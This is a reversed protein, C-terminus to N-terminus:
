FIDRRWLLRVLVPWGFLFPHRRQRETMEVPRGIHRELKWLIYPVWDGVTTANKLLRVFALGKAFPRALQWRIRAGRRRAPAMHVEFAPGRAHVEDLWGRQRLTELAPGTVADYREADADYHGRVTEPSETRLEASYTRRLAEQWLAAASFRQVAGRAPLFAGLRQVLTLVSQVCAQLALRRADDDRAYALLAPQSFRAWFYPVYSEPSVGREFAARSIVAYKCRLPGLESDQSLFFVNPPVLANVTRLYFSRYANRYDDVVVYFDLVGEHTHKRLCSGYFIVAVVADGHRGLIAETLIEAARPAPQELERAIRAALPEAPEM